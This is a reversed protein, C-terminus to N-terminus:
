PKCAKPLYKLSVNTETPPNKCTWSKEGDGDHDGYCLQIKNQDNELFDLICTICASAGGDVEKYIMDVYTGQSVVSPLSGWGKPGSAVPFVGANAFFINLKMKVGAVLQSCEAVKSKKIYDNYAPIAVAALIGIIAVVIMLEILTFGQQKTM